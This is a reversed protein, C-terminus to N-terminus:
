LFKHWNLIKEPDIGFKRFKRETCNSSSKRTGWGCREQAGHQYTRKQTLSAATRGQQPWVRPGYSLSFIAEPSGRGVMGLWGRWPQSGGRLTCWVQRCAKCCIPFPALFVTLFTQTFLHPSKSHLCERCHRVAAAAAPPLCQCCQQVGKSVSADASNAGPM